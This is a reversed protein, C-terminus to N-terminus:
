SAPVWGPHERKADELFRTFCTRLAEDTTKRMASEMAFAGAWVVRAAYGRGACHYTKQSVQQGGRAITYRMDMRAEFNRVEFSDLEVRVTVDNGPQFASGLYADAYQVIARGVEITCGGGQYSYVDPTANATSPM